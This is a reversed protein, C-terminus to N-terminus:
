PHALLLLPLLVELTSTRQANNQATYAQTLRGAGLPLLTLLALMIQLLQKCLHHQL